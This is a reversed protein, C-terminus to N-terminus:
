KLTEELVQNSFEQHKQMSQENEQIKQNLEAKMQELDNQADDKKLFTQDFDQKIM